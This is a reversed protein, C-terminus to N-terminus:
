LVACFDFSFEFPTYILCGLLTCYIFFVKVMWGEIWIIVMFRLSEMDCLAMDDRKGSCMLWASHLRIYEM